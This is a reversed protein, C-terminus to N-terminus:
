DDIRLKDLKVPQAIVLPIDRQLLKKKLELLDKAILGNVLSVAKDLRGHLNTITKMQSQTPASVSAGLQGILDMIGFEMGYWNTEFDKKANELKKSIGEIQSQIEQPTDTVNKLAKKIRSMEDQIEKIAKRTDVFAKAMGNVAMGARFRKQLADPDAELKPDISVRVIQTLEEGRAMWHGDFCVYATGEGHHSARVHSVWYPKPLRFAKTLNAWTAGGDETM